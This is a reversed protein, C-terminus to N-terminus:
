GLMAQIRARVKQEGLIQQIEYVDPSSTRGVLALRIVTSVDGVHGKYDDPNKKFDKPKAAYGNAVAIARIKDFWIDRDDNHDYSDLYALLLVNVDGALVNEPPEDTIEFYEDFFFSLFDFIQAAYALDKRPKDGSRGIDIARELTIRNQKFVAALEPRAAMAWEEMFDALEEASINVLTNKSVDNLKEIDVLIGSVGMKDTKMEFDETPSKPNAARWEEFDSNIITLLYEEIALPHYGESTYYSLSLEPDKRKSLKRKTGNEDIKMLVATHCYTPPEFGLAEFLAIHIPLSSLWEEGRIVHTTRMFHDDIVHAFHYTPLGDAKKIVVDMVNAPMTLEGRIGDFVKLESQGEAYDANLRVVYSEGNSIRERVEETSIDRYRAWEGYIGTVLKAAEQKERIEALEDETLFCHYAKGETLLKETFYDYIEKRESQRYPGYSGEENLTGDPLAIVGEDFSIGFHSLSSILTEIAGAVERKKDTDEVRLFFVGDTQRALKMNIYAMYLNGLHVFGTPSPGLRTVFAGVPLERAAYKSEFDSM